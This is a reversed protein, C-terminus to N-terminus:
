RGLFIIGNERCYEAIKIGKHGSFGDAWLIVPKEVEREMLWENFSKLEELFIARNVFGKESVSFRFAGTIGDTPLDNLHKRGPGSILRKGRHVIRVGPCEGSASVTVMATVQLKANLGMAYTPGKKGKSTLVRIHSSGATVKTEDQIM